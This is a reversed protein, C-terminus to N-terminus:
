AVPVDHRILRVGPFERRVMEATSDTSGDDVVIIEVHATQKLASQIAVRLEDQRNKTTIVVSAVPKLKNDEVAGAVVGSIMGPKESKHPVFGSAALEETRTVVNNQLRWQLLYTKWSVAKRDQMVEPAHVVISWWARFWTGTHGWRVFNVFSKFFKSALSVPVIFWPERLIVCLAQSRMGYFKWDRDSRGQMALDHFMRANVLCKVPRGSDWLATALFTEGASRFFLDPYYGVWETFARRRVMTFGTKFVNVYRDEGSITNEKPGEINCTVAGLEPEADFARVMKTLVDPALYYADDDMTMVFHGNTNAIALNLGPFFGVNRHTRVIKVQPFQAKMASEAEPDGPNLLVVIEIKPYDQQLCSQIARLLLQRRGHTVIVISITKDM